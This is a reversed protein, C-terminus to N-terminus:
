PKVVPVLLESFHQKFRGDAYSIMTAEDLDAYRLKKRHHLVIGDTQLRVEYREDGGEPAWVQGKAIRELIMEQPAEISIDEGGKPLETPLQPRAIYAPLFDGGPGQEFIVFRWADRGILVIAADALGDGNFDGQCIFPPTGAQGAKAWLGTLDSGAPVHYRPFNETIATLLRAPLADAATADQPKPVVQADHQKKDCGSLVLLALCGVRMFRNTWIM